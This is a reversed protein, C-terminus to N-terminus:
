HTPNYTIKNSSWGLQIIYNKNRWENILLISDYKIKYIYPQGKWHNFKTINLLNTYFVTPMHISRLLISNPALTWYTNCKHFIHNLHMAFSFPHLYFEIGFTLCNLPVFGILYLLYIPINAWVLTKILTTSHFNNGFSVLSFM